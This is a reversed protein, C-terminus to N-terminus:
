DYAVELAVDDVANYVDKTDLMSEFKNIQSDTFGRYSLEAHFKFWAEEVATIVESYQM